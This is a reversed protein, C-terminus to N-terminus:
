LGAPMAMPSAGADRDGSTWPLSLRGGTHQKEATRAVDLLSAM